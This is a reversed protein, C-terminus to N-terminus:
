AGQSAPKSPHHIIKRLAKDLDKPNNSTELACAAERLRKRREEESIIHKKKPM